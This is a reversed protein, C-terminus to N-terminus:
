KGVLERGLCGGARSRDVVINPVEHFVVVFFRDGCATTAPAAADIGIGWGVDRPFLSM